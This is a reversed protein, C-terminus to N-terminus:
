FSKDHKKFYIQKVPQNFMKYMVILDKCTLTKSKYKFFMSLPKQFPPFNPEEFKISTTTRNHIHEHLTSTTRNYHLNTTRRNHKYEQVKM